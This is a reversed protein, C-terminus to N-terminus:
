PRAADIGGTKTICLLTAGVLLLSVLGLAGLILFMFTRGLRGEVSESSGPQASDQPEAPAASVDRGAEAALAEDADRALRALEAQAERVRTEPVRVEIEVRAAFYPNTGLRKLEVPIGADALAERAVEAAGEDHVTEVPVLKM